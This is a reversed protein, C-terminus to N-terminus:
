KMKNKKKSSSIKLYDEGGFHPKFGCDQSWFDCAGCVSGALCADRMKNKIRAIWTPTFHNQNVNGKIVTSTSRIKKHKNASTYSRQLFEKETKLQTTQVKIVLNHLNKVHLLCLYRILYMIQWYKRGKCQRRMKSITDYSACIKIKILVWKNIKEKQKTVSKKKKELLLGTHWAKKM